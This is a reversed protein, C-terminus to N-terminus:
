NFSLVKMEGRSLYPRKESDQSFRVKGREEKSKTWEKCVEPHNWMDEMDEPSARSDWYTFNTDTLDYPANYNMDFCLLSHCLNKFDTHMQLQIM